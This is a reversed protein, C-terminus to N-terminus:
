SRLIFHYYKSDSVFVDLSKAFLRVNCKLNHKGDGMHLEDYPMFIKFDNYVSSEYSPIFNDSVSVSGDYTCYSDNFDKLAKGSQYYFYVIVQCDEGKLNDVDFKIHLRMGKEGYEYVNHDAWIEQVKGRPRESYEFIADIGEEVLKKLLEDVVDGFFDDINYSM